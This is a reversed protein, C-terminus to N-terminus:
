PLTQLPRIKRKAAAIVPTPHQFTPTCVWIADLDPLDLIHRYDTAHHEAGFDSAFGQAAETAVDAVALIRVGKIEALRTAHHRAIGGAGIFGINLM